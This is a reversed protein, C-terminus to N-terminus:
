KLQMTPELVFPEDSLHFLEPLEQNDVNSAIWLPRKRAWCNSMVKYISSFDESSRNRNLSKSEYHISM